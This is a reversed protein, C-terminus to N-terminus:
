TALFVTRLSSRCREFSIRKFLIKSLSMIKKRLHSSPFERIVFEIVFLSKMLFM